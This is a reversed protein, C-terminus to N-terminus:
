RPLSRPAAEATACWSRTATARVAILQPSGTVVSTHEYQSYKGRLLEFARAVEPSTEPLAPEIVRAEGDVRLWWLRRWDSDYEDIILSVLPRSRVNRVRTLERGSKPKADVPSFIQEGDRAFVIPVLNPRGDAGSTALRAVPWWDLVFEICERDLKM